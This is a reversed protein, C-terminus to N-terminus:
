SDIGDIWWEHGCEGKFHYDTYAGDHSDWERLIATVAHGCKPCHAEVRKGESFDGELDAYQKATTM